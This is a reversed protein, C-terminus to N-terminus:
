AQAGTGGAGAGSSSESVAGARRHDDLVVVVRSVVVPVLRVGVLSGGIEGDLAAVVDAGILVAFEVGEVEAGGVM